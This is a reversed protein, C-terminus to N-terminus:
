IHILSLWKGYDYPLQKFKLRAQKALGAGMVNSGDRKWGVNTPVVIWADKPEVNWIDGNATQM